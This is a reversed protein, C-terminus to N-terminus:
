TEALSPGSPLPPRGGAGPAAPGAEPVRAAVVLPDPCSHEAEARRLAQVAPRIKRHRSGCGDEVRLDIWGIEVHGEPGEFHLLAGVAIGRRPRM